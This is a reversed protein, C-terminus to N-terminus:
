APERFLYVSYEFLPYAHDIRFYPTVEAMCWALIDTPSQYYLNEAHFNVKSTMTNFVCGIDSLDFLRRILRRAFDDMERGPTDLKQTLIGNCVVIDYRGDLSADLIDGEIFMADPHTRRAEHLMAPVVDIGTYELSLGRANAHSLLGGYGCGVDLLRPRRLGPPLVALMKDYRLALRTEDSGWDAGASTAGHRDFTGAYHDKMRQTIRDM